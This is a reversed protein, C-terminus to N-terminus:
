FSSFMDSSSHHCCLADRGLILGRRSPRCPCNKNQQKSLRWTTRRQSGTYSTRSRQGHSKGPLFVPTPQWKRRWPIKQVWPNFGCRRCQCFSEKGSHWRLPICILFPVGRWYERRSFGLSPPAQRAATWPTALLRVRSLSKVKM